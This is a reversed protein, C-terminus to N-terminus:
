PEQLMEDTLIIFPNRRHVIRSQSPPASIEGRVYERNDQALDNVIKYIVYILIRLATPTLRLCRLLGLAIAERKSNKVAFSYQSEQTKYLLSLPTKHTKHKCDGRSFVINVRRLCRKDERKPPHCRQERWGLLDRLRNIPRAVASCVDTIKQRGLRNGFYGDLSPM